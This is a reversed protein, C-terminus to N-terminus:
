AFGQAGNKVVGVAGGHLIILLVCVEAMRVQVFSVRSKQYAEFHQLVSVGSMTPFHEPFPNLPPNHSSKKDWSYDARSRSIEELVNRAYVKVM